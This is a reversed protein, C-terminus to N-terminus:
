DYAGPGPIYKKENSDSREASGFGYKPANKTVNDFSEVYEGPGPM